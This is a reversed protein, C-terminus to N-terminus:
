SALARLNERRTVAITEHILNIDSPNKGLSSLKEVADRVEGVSVNTTKWRLIISEHSATEGALAINNEAMVKTLKGVDNVLISNRLRRFCTKRQSQPMVRETFLLSLDVTEPLRELLLRMVSPRPCRVGRCYGALTSASMGIKKAAASISGENRVWDQLSM